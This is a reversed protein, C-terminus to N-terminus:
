RFVDFLIQDLERATQVVRASASYTSQIIIIQGMEENVDVGRISTQREILSDKLLLDQKSQSGSLYANANSFAILNAAYEGLKVSSAPLTGATVFNFNTDKVAYIERLNENDHITVQFEDTNLSQDTPDLVKRLKATSFLNSDNLIDARLGLYAASNKTNQWNEIEDTRVFLDNLGFYTSFDQKSGALGTAIDGNQASDMVDIAIRYLPSTTRIQLRSLQDSATLLNIGDRDLQNVELPSSVFPPSSLVGGAGSVSTASYRFNKVGNFPNETPNNIVYTITNTNITAGETVEVDLTVTLPYNIVAPLSINLNPGSSGTRAATGANSTYTAGNFSSTLTTALSDTVVANTIRIDNAFSKRNEVELDLIFNSGPTFTQTVAALKVDSIDNIQVSSDLTLKAGFHYKIEQVISEFNARGAGLGSDLAGLNLDLHPINAASKGESDLVAIRVNGSFGLPSSRSVEYTGTLSSAPLYGNGKNHVKNFEDKMVQAMQDLQALYKPLEVDRLRLMAGIKGSKFPNLVEGSQGGLVIPRDLNLDKDTNDLSSLLISKFENNQIIQDVSVSPDYKFFYRIGGVVTDGTSLNIVTQGSADFYTNIEFYESIKEISKRLSDEATVKEVSGRSLGSVTKNLAHANELENNLEELSNYIDRDLEFRMREIERAKNSIVTTLSELQKIASLKLSSSDPKTALKDFSKFVENLVYDIGRGDNPKGMVDSVNELYNNILGSYEAKSINQYISVQLNEDLESKIGVVEVGQVRGGVISPATIMTLKSYAPDNANAINHSKLSLNKQSATLNSLSNNIANSM